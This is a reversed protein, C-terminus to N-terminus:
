GRQAWALLLSSGLSSGTDSVTLQDSGMAIEEGKLLRDEQWIFYLLLSYLTSLYMWLFFMNNCSPNRLPFWLFFNKFHMELCMKFSFWYITYSIRSHISIKLLDNIQELLITSWTSFYTTNWWHNAFVRASSMIITPLIFYLSFLSPGVAKKRRNGLTMQSPSRPITEKMETTSTKVVDEEVATPKKKGM